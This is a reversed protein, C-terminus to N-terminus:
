ALARNGKDRFDSALFPAFLTFLVKLLEEKKNRKM